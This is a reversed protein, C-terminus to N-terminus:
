DSERSIDAGTDRRRIVQREFLASIADTLNGLDNGLGMLAVRLDILARVISDDDDSGLAGETQSLAHVFRRIDGELDVNAERSESELERIEQDSYKSSERALQYIIQYARSLDIENM